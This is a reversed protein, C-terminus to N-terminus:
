AGTVAKVVDAAVADVDIAKLKPFPRAEPGVVFIEVGTKANKVSFVGKRPKNPNM